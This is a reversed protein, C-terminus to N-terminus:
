FGCGCYTQVNQWQGSASCQATGTCHWESGMTACGLGSQTVQASSGAATEPFNLTTFTLPETGQIPEQVLFGPCNAEIRQWNIMAVIDRWVNTNKRNRARIRVMEQWSEGPALDKSVSCTTNGAQLPAVIEPTCLGSVGPVLVEFECGHVCEGGGIGINAVFQQEGQERNCGQCSQLSLAPSTPAECWRYEYMCNYLNKYLIDLEAHLEDLSEAPYGRLEVPADVFVDGASVFNATISNMNGHQVSLTNAQGHNINAVNSEIRAIEAQAASGSTAQLQNASFRNSSIRTAQANIVAVNQFHANAAYTDQMQMQEQQWVNIFSNSTLRLLGVDGEQGSMSATNFVESALTNATLSTATVRESELVATNLQSTTLEDSTLENSNITEALLEEINVIASSSMGLNTNMASPTEGSRKLWGSSGAHDNTNAPETALQLWLESGSVWSAALYPQVREVRNRGYLKIRLAHPTESPSASPVLEISEVYDNVSGAFPPLPWHGNKQYYHMIAMRTQHLTEVILEDQLAYAKSQNYIQVGLASGAIAILLVLLMILGYGSQASFRSM